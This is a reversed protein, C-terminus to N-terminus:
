FGVSLMLANTFARKKVQTPDSATAQAYLVQGALSPPVGFSVSAAGGSLVFPLRIPAGSLRSLLTGGYASQVVPQSSMWVFGFTGSPIGSVRLEMTTVPNPLDDTSLDGVNAGGLGDGIRLVTGGSGPVCDDEDFSFVYAAGVNGGEFPSTLVAKDGSMAIGFSFNDLPSPASSLLTATEQWAGNQFRFVTAVGSDQGTQDHHHGSLIAVDGQIAVCEGVWDDARAKSPVLKATQVWAGGVQEFVYGAGAGSGNTSDMRAGLLIRGGDLAVGRGLEGADDNAVLKATETWIGGVKEFVYAAGSKPASSDSRYSGVVIRGNQVAVTDGSLDNRRGDSPLLKATEVWDGAVREFVYAAGAHNGLQRDFRAGVVIVDGSIAVCEGFNHSRRGDAPQLKASEVWRGSPRRQFVYAAGANSGLESDHFEAGIVITDGSIGVSNGFEDSSGPDSAMLPQQRQIWGTGLDEFVYAFGPRTTNTAFAGVVLRSGDIAAAKGFYDFPLTSSGALAQIECQAHRASPIALLALVSTALPRRSM